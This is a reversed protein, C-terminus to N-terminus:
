QPVRHLGTARITLVQPSPRAAVTGVVVVEDLPSIGQASLDFEMPAGSQDVLQVTAMNAQRDELPTCCYDWPTPCHDDGDAVCPNHVDTDIMVFTATDTALADKRGGILGRITVTDGEAASDKAQRVNVAGDPMSALRWASSTPAAGSSGGTSTSSSNENCGTLTLACGAFLALAINLTTNM